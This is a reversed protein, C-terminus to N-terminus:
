FTFDNLEHNLKLLLSLIRMKRSLLRLLLFFYTSKAKDSLSMNLCLNRNLLLMLPNRSLLLCGVLLRLLWNLLDDVLGVVLIWLDIGETEHSLFLLLIRLFLLIFLIREIEHTPILVFISWFRFLLSWAEIKKHILWNLCFM